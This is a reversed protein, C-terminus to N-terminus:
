VVLGTGTGAVFGLGSGGGKYRCDSCKEAERWMLLLLPLVVVLVSGNKWWGTQLLM